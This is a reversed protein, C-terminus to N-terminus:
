RSFTQYATYIIPIALAARTARPIVGKYFGKIGDNKYITKVADWIHRIRKRKYDRQLITKVTDAPHTAIATAVGTIGGGVITVAVENDLYPKISKKILPFLILYGVTFGGDRVANAALGRGAVRPGAEHLLQKIAPFVKKGSNQQKLIILEIPTSATASLAGACFARKIKATEDDGDIVSELAKNTAIQIATTPGMSAISVGFGRYMIKPKFSISKKQQLMNKIYILPQTTVVEIIGAISGIGINRLFENSQDGHLTCSALLIAITAYTKIKHM